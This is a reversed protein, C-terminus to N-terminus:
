IPALSLLTLSADDIRHRDAVCFDSRVCKMMEPFSSSVAEAVIWGLMSVADGIRVSKMFEVYVDVKPDELRVIASWFGNPSEGVELVLGHFATPSVGSARNLTIAWDPPMACQESGSAVILRLILEASGVAPNWCQAESNYDIDFYIARFSRMQVRTMRSPM